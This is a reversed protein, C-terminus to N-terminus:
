ASATEEAWPDDIVPSTQQKAVFGDEEEFMSLNSYEMLELIQIAQLGAGIGEKGKFNYPFARIAVKAKTGNGIAELDEFTNKKSDVVTVPRTAKPTVYRGKSEKGKAKGDQVILGADELAKVSKKDLQCVDVQYKGSMENTKALHAWELTGEVIVQKVESM